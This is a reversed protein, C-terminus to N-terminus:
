GGQDQTLSATLSLSTPGSTSSRRGTWSTSARSRRDTRRRDWSGQRGVDRAPEPPQLAPDCLHRAARRRRHLPRESLEEGAARHFRYILIIHSFESLAALGDRFEPSVEVTGRATSFISQIPTATPDSFPTRAIGVARCSYAESEKMARDGRVGPDPYTPFGHKAFIAKGEDSTVFTAFQRATDPQTTFTTQGIPVILTLGDEQALDITDMKEPNIMDLTLLAADATGMNM